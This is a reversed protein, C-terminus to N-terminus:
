QRVGNKRRSLRLFRLLNQWDEQISAGVTRYESVIRKGSRAQIVALLERCDEIFDPIPPLRRGETTVIQYVFSGGEATWIREIRKIEPWPIQHRESPRRLVLTANTVEVTLKAGIIVIIQILGFLLIFGLAIFFGPNCPSLLALSLLWIQIVAIVLM